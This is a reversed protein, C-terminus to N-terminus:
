KLGHGFQRNIFFKKMFLIDKKGAYSDIIPKIQDCYNKRATYNPIRPGEYCALFAFCAAEYDNIDKFQSMTLSSGNGWTNLIYTHLAYQGPYDNPDWYIRWCNSVWKGFVDNVLAYLQAYGDDPDAGATQQSTSENPAWDPLWSANLYEYAPTFQFLGYGANPDSPAYTNNQWYWPNLAGEAVINGLIGVICNDAYGEGHLYDYITKINATGETSSIPYGGYPTAYFRSM